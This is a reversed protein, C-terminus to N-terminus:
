LRPSSTDTTPRSHLSPLQATTANCHAQKCHDSEPLCHHLLRALSTRDPPETTSSTLPTGQTTAPNPSAVVVYRTTVRDCWLTTEWTVVSTPRSSRGTSVMALSSTSTPAVAEAARAPQRPAEKLDDRRWPSADSHAPHTTPSRPRPRLPIFSEAPFSVPPARSPPILQPTAFISTPPSSSSSLSPSSSWAATPPSPHVSTLPWITRAAPCCTCTCSCPGAPPSCARLAEDQGSPRWSRGERATWHPTARNSQEAQAAWGM